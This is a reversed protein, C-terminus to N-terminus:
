YISHSTGISLIDSYKRDGLNCFYDQPTILSCNSTQLMTAKYWFDATQALAYLTFNKYSCFM